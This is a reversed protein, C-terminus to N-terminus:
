WLSNLSLLKCPYKSGTLRTPTLLLVLAATEANFNVYEKAEMDSSIKNIEKFLNNFEEGAENEDSETMENSFDCKTFSDKITESTVFIAKM